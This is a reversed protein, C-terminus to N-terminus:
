SAPLTLFELVRAQEVADLCPSVWAKVDDPDACIRRSPNAAERTLRECQLRLTPSSAPVLVASRLMRPDPRRIDELLAASVEQNMIQLQRFDTCVVFPGGVEEIMARFANSYERLEDLSRLASARCEVLKGVHRGVTWTPGSALQPVRVRRSRGLM